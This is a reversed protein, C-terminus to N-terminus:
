SGCLYNSPNAQGTPNSQAGSLTAMGENTYQMNFQKVLPKSLWLSSNTDADFIAAPREWVLYRSGSGTCNDGKDPLPASECTDSANATVCSASLINALTAAYACNKLKVSVQANWLIVVSNILPTTQQGAICAPPNGTGACAYVNMQSDPQRNFQLAYGNGAVGNDVLPNTPQWDKTNLFGASFLDKGDNSGTNITLAVPNSPSNVPDLAGPSRPIGAASYNVRCNAQYYNRMVQFLQSVNASLQNQDAGMKFQNYYRMGLLTLSSMIALVLLLELLTMGTIKQKKQRKQKMM